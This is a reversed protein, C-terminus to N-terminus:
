SVGLPRVTVPQGPKLLTKQDGTPHAEILYVLKHRTQESFIVPPTYEPQPAVFSVKATLGAPCTDCSIGVRDGPHLHPLAPEPVFFRVLIHDPPLLSVVPAGAALTEGPWAYVDAVLATAHAVVHRQALRWEAEALQAQMQKVTAQQAAIEQTRGTPSRMQDLKAQAAQVKAAASLADARAQDLQQRTGASTRALAEARQLDLQTRDRIARLDALDAEAQAIETARSAGQLNQLQAAAQALKAAAEDRTARDYTDDQAFLPAGAQVTDGRHVALSTLLGQQTPAVKVYDADVYGQWSAPAPTPALRWWAFAAAGAFVAIALALKTRTM